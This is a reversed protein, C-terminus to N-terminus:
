WMRALSDTRIAKAGVAAAVMVAVRAAAVGVIPVFALRLRRPRAQAATVMAKAMAMIVMVVAAVAIIVIVGDTAGGMMTVVVISVAMIIANSVGTIVIGTMWTLAAVAGTLFTFAMALIISIIGGVVPM